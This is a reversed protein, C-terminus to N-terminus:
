TQRHLVGCPCCSLSSPAKARLHKFSQHLVHQFHFTFSTSCLFCCDEHIFMIIRFIRVTMSVYVVVRFNRKKKFSTKCFLREVCQFCSNICCFYQLVCHSVCMEFILCPSLISCPNDFRCFVSKSFSCLSWPRQLPRSRKAGIQTNRSVTYSDMGVALNKKTIKM